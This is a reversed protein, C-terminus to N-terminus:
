FSTYGIRRALNTVRLNDSTEPTIESNANTDSPKCTITKLQSSIASERLIHTVIQNIEDISM